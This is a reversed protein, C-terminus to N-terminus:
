PPPVQDYSRSRRRRPEPAAPKKKFVGLIQDLLSPKSEDAPKEARKEKPAAKKKAVKRAPM